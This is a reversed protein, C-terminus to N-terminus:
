KHQLTSCHTIHCVRVYDVHRSVAVDECRCCVQLVGCVTNTHTYVDCWRDVRICIVDAFLWLKPAPTHINAHVYAHCPRATHKFHSMWTGPLTWWNTTRPKNAHPFIHIYMMRDFLYRSIIHISVYIFINGYTLMFIHICVCTDKLHIYVKTKVCLSIDYTRRIYIGYTYIFTQM